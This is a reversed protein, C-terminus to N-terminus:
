IVNVAAMRLGAGLMLRRPGLPISLIMSGLDGCPSTYGRSLDEYFFIGALVDGRDM